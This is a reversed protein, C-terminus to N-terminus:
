LDPWFFKLTIPITVEGEGQIDQTLNVRPTNKIVYTRLARSDQALMHNDVFDKIDSKSTNGNIEVILHKLETTVSPRQGKLIKSMEEIEKDVIENEGETLFKFKIKDETSPLVYSCYGNEDINLDFPVHKLLTLDVNVEKGKSNNFAYKSGYGLIRTAILLANKDGPLITKIDIDDILVSSLLKDLVTGDEIYNKNSLIDEEKASMYKIEVKDKKHWPHSHPYFLGKSPIDVFETPFTTRNM